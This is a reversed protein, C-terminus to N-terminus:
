VVTAGTAEDIVTAYWFTDTGPLTANTVVDDPGNAPATGGGCPSSSDPCTYGTGAGTAVFHDVATRSYTIAGPAGSLKVAVPEDAYQLVRQSFVTAGPTYISLTSIPSDGPLSWGFVTSPAVPKIEVPAAMPHNDWCASTTSENGFSDRFRVDVFMHGTKTGLAAIDNRHLTIAFVGSADPQMSTWNYLVTGSADRVRYASDMNDIPTSDSAKVQWTLPNPSTEAGYLPKTADMLYAYKYVSPCGTGDLNIAAGAHTHVAEGTSFDVQDGREDKISGFMVAVPAKDDLAFLQRQEIGSSLEIVISTDAEAITGTPLDISWTTGTITATGIPTNNVAVSITEGTPNDITGHLTPNSKNTWWRTGDDVFGTKDITFGATVCTHQNVDCAMGAACDAATTCTTPVDSGSGTDSGTDSGSGNNGNAPAMTTGCAATFLMAVMMKRM